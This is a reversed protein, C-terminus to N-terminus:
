CNSLRKTQRAKKLAQAIQKRERKTLKKNKAIGGGRGIAVAAPDKEINM